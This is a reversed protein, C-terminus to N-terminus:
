EFWNSMKRFILMGNDGRVQLDGDECNIIITNMSIPMEQVTVPDMCRECVCDEIDLKLRTISPSYYEYEGADKIQKVMEDMKM